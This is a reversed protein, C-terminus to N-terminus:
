CEREVEGVVAGRGLRAIKVGWGGLNPFATLFTDLRRQVLGDPVIGRKKVLKLDARRRSFTRPSTLRSMMQVSVQDDEDGCEEDRAHYHQAQGTSSTQTNSLSILLELGPNTTTTKKPNADTGGGGGQEPRVRWPEIDQSSDM